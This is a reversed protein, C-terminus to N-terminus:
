SYRRKKFYIIASSLLIVPILVILIKFLLKYYLPSDDGYIVLTSWFYPHSRLDDANELYKIRAKKLSKSKTNGAKLNKYFLKIIDTGSRDDVEWLSMIVSKSGAFIFGRALSLVGEGASLAGSGTYCSSLVVMKANLPIGYIEYTSLYPDEMSDNVKSFIMRSNMPDKENLVTHMALHIIDFKGAEAKYVSETALDNQYLKGSTLQSVFAAEEHAFPLEHLIGKDPQRQILLSDFYIASNYSPAFSLTKNSFSPKTKESESLFTASYTYSIQYEKMLYPLNRYSLDDRIKNDTTLTEFPFFALTNDPSIILKGSILFEKVPEILYSYLRYGCSQFLKFENLAYSKLEPESLLKRFQSITRFFLSDIDKVILQNHKKNAIFINLLSDTIVYSIYNKDRGILNPIDKTKIVQTNYKLSYYEPFEKEFIKILSDRKQIASLIYDSWLSIKESDRKELNNEESVKAEYFSIEQQLSKELSALNEPIHSKIAKMERTSALLNAVKSKETYEFAKELFIPNDTLKNCYYFCEIANMYSDRYKDGLLLRSEEEGINLRIKELVAIQLEATNAASELANIDNNRSFIKRLIRYKAGLINWTEKDQKIKKVDPNFYPDAPKAEDVDRFLLSQITDLAEEPENNYLLSLSYGLSISNNLNIDWPHSRSYDYCELFLHKALQIDINYDRLYEAYNRLSLYYDRPNESYSKKAKELASALIKVGKDVMKNEGLVVSYNSFLNLSIISNNNMAYSVGKEYFEMCKDFQGLYFFSTAINNLINIYNDDKPLSYENYIKEAKMLNMNAQKYDATNLLAVGISQYLMAMDGIPVSDAHINAIELGSKSYEIAKEYDRININASALSIYEHILEKSKIGYEMKKVALSGAFYINSKVHDGLRNNTYGMFYLTRGEMNQDPYEKLLNFAQQFYNLATILRGNISYYAGIFYFPRILHLSDVSSNNKIIILLSDALNAGRIKDQNGLASELQSSLRRLTNIVQDNGQIAYSLNKFESPSAFATPGIDISCTINGMLLFVFRLIWIKVQM